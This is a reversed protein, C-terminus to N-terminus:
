ACPKAHTVCSQTNSDHHHMCVPVRKSASLSSSISICLSCCSPLTQGPGLTCVPGLVPTVYLQEGTDVDLAFLENATGSGAAWVVATKNDATTAIPSGSGEINACRCGAGVRRYWLSELVCPCRTLCACLLSMTDCVLDTCDSSQHLSFVRQRSIM